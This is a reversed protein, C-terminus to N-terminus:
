EPVIQRTYKRKSWAFALCEQVIMQLLYAESERCFPKDKNLEFRIEQVVHLAEHAVLAAYCEKSIKRSPKPMYIICNLAGCNTFYHTAAAAGADPAVDDADPVKLRKLERKFAIPCM